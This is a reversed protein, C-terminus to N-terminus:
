ADWGPFVKSFNVQWGDAQADNAALWAQAQAQDHASLLEQIGAYGWTRSGTATGAWELRFSSDVNGAELVMCWTTWTVDVGQVVGLSDISEGGAPRSLVQSEGPNNELNSAGISVLYRRGADLTGGPTFTHFDGPATQTGMVFNSCTWEPNFCSATNMDWEGLPMLQAGVMIDGLAAGESVLVDVATGIDVETGAPPAQSIIDDAPVTGDPQSTEDGLELGLDELVVTAAAVTIGTVDPVTVTEPEPEPSEPPAPLPPQRKRPRDSRLDLALRRHYGYRRVGPLKLYM